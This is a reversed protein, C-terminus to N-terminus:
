EAYCRLTKLELAEFSRGILWAAQIEMPRGRRGDGVEQPEANPDFFGYAIANPLREQGTFCLRTEAEGAERQLRPLALVDAVVWHPEGTINRCALRDIWLLSRNQWRAYVWRHSGNDIQGQEVLEFTEPLNKPDYSLGVMRSPDEPPASDFTGAPCDAPSITSAATPQSASGSRAIPTQTARPTRTPFRESADITPTGPLMTLTAVMSGPPACATIAAALLLLILLRAARKM